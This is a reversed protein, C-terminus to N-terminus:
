KNLTLHMGCSQWQLLHYLYGCFTGHPNVCTYHFNLICKFNTNYNFIIVITVSFCVNSISYWSDTKSMQNKLIMMFIDCSQLKFIGFQCPTSPFVNKNEVNLGTSLRTRSSHTPNGQVESDVKLTVSILLLSLNQM